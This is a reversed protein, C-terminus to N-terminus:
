TYYFLLWLSVIFPLGSIFFSLMLCSERVAGL